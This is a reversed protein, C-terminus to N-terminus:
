TEQFGWGRKLSLFTDEASRGLVGQIRVPCKLVLELGPVGEEDIQRQRQLLYWMNEGNAPQPPARM